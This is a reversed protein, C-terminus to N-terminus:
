SGGDVWPERLGDIEILGSFPRMRLVRQEGRYSLVVRAGQKATGRETFEFAELGGLDWTEIRVGRFVADRDFRREFTHAGYPSILPTGDETVARYGGGDEDLQLLLTEQYLAARNQVDRLDRALLRTANDLTVEPRDFWAPITFSSLVALVALVITLELITFGARRRRARTPATPSTSPM